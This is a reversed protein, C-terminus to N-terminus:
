LKSKLIYLHLIWYCVDYVNLENWMGYPYHQLEIYNEHLLMATIILSANCILNTIFFSSKSLAHNYPNLLHNHAKNWFSFSFIFQLEHKLCFLLQIVRWLVINWIKIVFKVTKLTWSSLFSYLQMYFRNKFKRNM